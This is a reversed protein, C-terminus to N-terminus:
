EQFTRRASGADIGNTINDALILQPPSGSQPAQPAPRALRRLIGPAVPRLRDTQDFLLNLACRLNGRAFSKYPLRAPNLRM